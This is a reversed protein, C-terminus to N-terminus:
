RLMDASNLLHCAVRTEGIQPSQPTEVKCQDIALPCRPHFVCGPPSNIPDPIEGEPLEPTRDFGDPKPAAELLMRTYPHRPADFLEDRPAEEVPRSLYLVGVRDAM